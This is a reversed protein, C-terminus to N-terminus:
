SSRGPHADDSAPDHAGAAGTVGAAGRVGDGGHRVYLVTPLDALRTTGDDATWSVQQRSDDDFVIDIGDAGIALWAMLEALGHEPPHEEVLEGLSVQSRDRLMARVQSILRQQDVHDVTFLATTEAREEAAEVTSDIRAEAPPAYLPREFPLAIEPRIADLQMTLEPRADRLAVSTGEIGRLLEVVRRNELWVSDDLFRRLQDSLTRVTSQTRDAALLWDRDIRRVRDDAVISELHHVEDLLQGLEEQREASLLFDYFAQFSRGQDSDAIANRDGLLQDLLAGKSGDWGAITERMQRDLARFKVEVERFDSLLERATAAFQQYRDRQATPDLVDIQGSEARAIEADLRDREARLHELRHEPDTDSGRAIQRLLGVLTHLRSETGVFARDQLSAVWAVAKELAPTADVHPEDSGEVYHLRLWGADAGAWDTVYAAASKPYAGEGLQERLAYLEDDLQSVLDARSIVRVNDDVFVRGLFGIVLAANDARLLRWAPHRERLLSLEDHSVM